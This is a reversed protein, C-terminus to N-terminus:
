LNVPPIVRVLLETGYLSGIEFQPIAAVVMNLNNGGYLKFEEPFQEIAALVSDKLSQPILPFNYLPHEIFLQELSSHPLIFETDGTGLATSAKSPVNILGANAGQTGEYMMNLFIYHILGATDLRKI